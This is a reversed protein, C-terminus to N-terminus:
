FTLLVEKTVVLMYIKVTLNFVASLHLHFVRLTKIRRSVSVEKHPSFVGRSTRYAQRFHNSPVLSVLLVGAASIFM